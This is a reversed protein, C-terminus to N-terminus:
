IGTTCFLPLFLDLVLDVTNHLVQRSIYEAYVFNYGLLGWQLIASIRLYLSILLLLHFNFLSTLSPLRRYVSM